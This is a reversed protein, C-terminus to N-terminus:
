NKRIVKGEVLKYRSFMYNGFEQCLKVHTYFTCENFFKKLDDASNFSINGFLQHLENNTFRNYIFEALKNISSSSISYGGIVEIIHIDMYENIHGNSTEDVLKCLSDITLDYVGSHNREVRRLRLEINNTNNNSVIKANSPVKPIIM